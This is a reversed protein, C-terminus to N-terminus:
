HSHVYNGTWVTASMTRATKNVVSAVRRFVTKWLRFWCVYEFMRVCLQQLIIACWYISHLLSSDLLALLRIFPGFLLLIFSFFLDVQASCHLISSLAKPGCQSFWQIANAVIWVYVYLFIRQFYNLCFYKTIHNSIARSNKKAVCVCLYFIHNLRAFIRGIIKGM